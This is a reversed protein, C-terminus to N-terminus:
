APHYPFKPNVLGLIHIWGIFRAIRPTTIRMDSAGRGPWATGITVTLPGLRVAAEAASAAKRALRPVRVV